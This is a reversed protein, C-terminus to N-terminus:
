AHEVFPRLRIWPMPNIDIGVRRKLRNAISNPDYLWQLHYPELEAMTHPHYYSVMAPVGLQRYYSETSKQVSPMEEESYFPSDLVHIEGDAVLSPLIRGFLAPIDPFYQLSGNFIVVDFLREPWPVKFLNGFLWTPNVNGFVRSAQLLEHRNIDLGVINTDPLKEALRHCFWGNGCGIEILFRPSPKKRRLYKTFPEFSQRRLRWIPAHRDNGPVCPLARVQDDTYLWGERRRAHLYAEEFDSAPETLFHVGNETYLVQFYGIM